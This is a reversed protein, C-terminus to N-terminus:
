KPLQKIFDAFDTLPLGCTKDKCLYYMPTYKVQKNALLPIKSVQEMAVLIKNPLFIKSMVPLKNIVGEGSLVLQYLGHQKLLIVQLWNSYGTPHKEIKHQVLLLMDNVMNHYKEEEFLYGLLLLCKAFTSNASPIVDDNLDVKKAVLEEDTNSKFYFLKKEENYFFTISAELVSKAFHLYKEDGSAEFLRVMAEVTLAYDEAFGHISVKGTKYIRMLKGNQWMTSQIFDAATKACRLYEKNGFTLYADAYAKIMMANWATITKNDLGPKVRSARAFLLKENCRTVVEQLIAISKGTLKELQEDTRTKYLINSGHEWNGYVDVSFYLSYIPEDEGLLQELEKQTWVYFKGEVGESDADLASYFVGESSTLEQQIFNLTQQITKAFLPHGSQQYAQCYLSVLQANDYLMKEFHPVKWYNDTSYRAFGGGVQDYIGGEAMKVLTNNVAQLLTDDKTYYYQQLLLEWNNPMPFKPVWNYGGYEEDINQKWKKIITSIQEKTLLEKNILPPLIDLKRIGNTLDTAYELAEEKKNKYFDAISKLVREWEQKPFYTGGHLPRGDPLAFCNLPWGGRGTLLQVADMYVQDVDPREERDVKICVFHENMIAATDEQEFAEREMVHCWHCASYGISILVLKDERRAKEFAEEGWEYWDVPNYAHQLLYPSSAQALRNAPATNKMSYHQLL